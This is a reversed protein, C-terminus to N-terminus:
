EIVTEKRGCLARWSRGFRDMGLDRIKTENVYLTGGNGFMGVVKVHKALRTIHCKNMGDRLELGKTGRACTGANGWFM